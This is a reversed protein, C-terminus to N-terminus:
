CVCRECTNRFCVLHIILVHVARMHEQFVGSMILVHVARMHEQFVGCVCNVCAISWTNRFCVLRIILVHMARM